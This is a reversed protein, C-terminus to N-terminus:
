QPTTKGKKRKVELAKQAEAIIEKLEDEDMEPDIVDSSVAAADIIVPNKEKEKAKRKFYGRLFFNGQLAKM